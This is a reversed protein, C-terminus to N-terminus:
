APSRRNPTPLVCAVIGLMGAALLGFDQVVGLEFAAISGVAAWLLPIVAVARPFPPRLFFLLGLTFITTPCPAGFTPTAPYRHGALIGLLPCILLAYLVLAGGAVTRATSVIGFRPGRGWVGLAFLLLAQILFIVGFIPAAPNVAAFFVLHYAVGMWAWLLALIISIIRGAGAVKSFVLALAVIALVILFIQGPWVARNYRVFVQFFQEVTFPM